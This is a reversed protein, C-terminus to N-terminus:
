HVVYKTTTRPSYLIKSQQSFYPETKQSKREGSDEPVSLRAVGIKRRLRPSPDQGLIYFSPSTKYFNFEEQPEFKTLKQYDRLHNVFNIIHQTGHRSIM